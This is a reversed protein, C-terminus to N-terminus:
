YTNSIIKTKSWSEQHEEKISCHPHSCDSQLVNYELIISYLILRLAMSYDLLLKIM